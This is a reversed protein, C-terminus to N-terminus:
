GEEILLPHGEPDDKTRGFRHEAQLREIERRTMEPPPRDFNFPGTPYLVDEISVGEVPGLLPNPVVRVTEAPSADAGEETAEERRTGEAFADAKLKEVDDVKVLGGKGTGEVAEVAVGMEEAKKAAAETAQIKGM